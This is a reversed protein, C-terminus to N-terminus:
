LSESPRTADSILAVLLPKLRNAIVKSVIKYVVNCLAIPKFRDLTMVKEQKLILVIFSANLYKLFFNYTRSDEVVELIDQKVTKGCAKFFDM